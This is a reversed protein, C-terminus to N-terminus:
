SVKYLAEFFLSQIPHKRFFILEWSPPVPYDDYSLIIGDDPNKSRLWQKTYFYGRSYEDILCFYKGIQGIRMEHLSSINLFLDFQPKPLLELQNPIFFCLDANEYEQKVEAYNDFDRFNFIKLEPFISSLYRQAVYLAPPIDFIVYKCKLAKLFIFALRGYGAGLEAISLRGKVNSPIQNVVSYYEIISNCIDQSILRNKYYIRFPNGELPEETKELLDEKDVGKTYEWLMAVFLKYFWANIRGFRSPFIGGCKSTFIQFTPNAIWHRILNRCQVDTPSLIWNFYQLNLTRKFNQYGYKELHEIHMRNLKQWFLSAQYIEPAKRFTDIMYGLSTTENKM